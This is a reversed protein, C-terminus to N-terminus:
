RGVAALFGAKEHKTTPFQKKGLYEPITEREQKAKGSMQKMFFPVGAAACQDRLSEAWEVQMKRAQPGSEGGCIVWDLGPATDNAHCCGGSQARCSDKSTRCYLNCGNVKGLFQSLDVNGLMPEVSVFRVDAPIRLLLPIRLDAERQTEATVGLWVNPLPWDGPLRDVINEPRKTLIQFTLHQCSRIIEWAEDRWQDADEIFYDSWSCAFVKTARRWSLPKRFTAPSSRVVLHPDQGFRLKDRFMYCNVCGASVQFCGQWPNWTHDTWEILSDKGM